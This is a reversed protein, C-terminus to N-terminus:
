GPLGTGDTVPNAVPTRRTGGPSGPTGRGHGATRDGGGPGAFRGAAGAAGYERAGGGRGPRRGGDGGRASRFQLRSACNRKPDGFPVPARGPGGAGDARRGRGGRCLASGPDRAQRARARYDEARLAPIDMQKSPYGVIVAHFSCDRPILALAEILDPVGKSPRIGGFFLVEPEPIPKRDVMGGDPDRLLKFIDENGHPITAHVAVSTGFYGEFEKQVRESLFFITSFQAYLWHSASRHLHRMWPHLQERPEFEHCVQTLTLGSLRLWALFVAQFPFHIMGFQVVDPRTRRLYLVLRTWERLLILGRGVRRLNRRVKAIKRQWPTKESGRDADIPSWLRMRPELAFRHPLAGLEYDDSTLLTVEAGCATLGDCLQYAFHSLGGVGFPEVVTVRM